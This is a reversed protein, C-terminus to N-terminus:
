KHNKTPLTFFFTAGNNVKGEAWISGGQRYLLRKVIALGVGTGEFEKQSHLRQFLDFLKNYYKMNFGAGNDKIYYITENKGKEAGIEIIPNEKHETFKISNSILNTLIQNMATLDGYAVPLSNVKLKVEQRDTTPRLEKFVNKILSEMNVDTKKLETRGARSLSLIDDILHAMRNTNDRVNNLFRKGQDDLKDEYRNLLVRSYGDIARLPTRLDHSISFAFSELEDNADKLQNSQIELKKNSFELNEKTKIAELDIQNLSDASKWILFSLIIIASIITIAVGTAVDYLGLREGIIRIFGIVLLIAIISPLLRRAMVGGLLPSTFTAMIGQDPRSFLLGLCVIIFAISTNLAMPTVIISYSITAGYIYGAFSFLSISSAILVLFQYTSNGYKNKLDIILLSIGIILFNIATTSAMRGPNTTLVAGVRETFLLQDIGINNNFLYEIITLFGIIGVIIACIQSIHLKPRSIQKENLYFLSIGILIFCIATNAKMAVINPFISKFSEINFTWGIIVLLGILIAIISAIKSFFKLQSLQPNNAENDNM